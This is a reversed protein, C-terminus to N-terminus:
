KSHDGFGENQVVDGHRGEERATENSMGLLRKEKAEGNNSSVLFVRPPFLPLRRMVREERENGREGAESDRPMGCGLSFSCGWMGAEGEEERKKQQQKERERKELDLIPAHLTWKLRSTRPRRFSFFRSSLPTSPPGGEAKREREGEVSNTHIHTSPRARQLFSPSPCTWGKKGERERGGKRGRAATQACSCCCM